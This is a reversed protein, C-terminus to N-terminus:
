QQKLLDQYEVDPYKTKLDQVVELVEDDTVLAGQGRIPFMSRPSLFLMDGMGLLAEAGNQDLVVRSDLKSSVTFAIRTPMNAKILGTIVTREPRQTALILHIGVARSKQALRTIALEVDKGGTMILDAMEDVVIVIYPLRDPLTEEDMGHRERSAARRAAPLDNYGKVNRVGTCKLQ